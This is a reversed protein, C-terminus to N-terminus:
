DDDKKKDDKKDNSDKCVVKPVSDYVITSHQKDIVKDSDADRIIRTDSSTFGGQGANPTCDKDSVHRTGPDTYDRRKGTKSEVKVHKTGWLKVTISSPTWKTQIAVGTDYNNTFKVDILSDGGPTMFVTAERAEPYRDIYYSHEQHETDKMGAFYAANYLTTAFQSIGGGVGEDPVGDKIIGAPVYGEAETRKGTYGNLSFTDGPKVVAGDLREAVKKINVGSDAAFDKTTFKGIVEDVGLNKADKTTLDPKKKEYVADISRSGKGTLVDLLPKTTKKWDVQKGSESPQVTPEGDKFVIEADKGSKETDDLDVADAVKNRDIKPKLTGKDTPEFSLAAAVGEPKLTADGGKGHVTVPESVAPKAVNNMANRVAKAKVHVPRKSVPLRLEHDAVWQKEVLETAATTRLKQGARPHVAVPEANKFEIDGEVPERNVDDALKGMTKALRDEDTSTAVGVENTTFFSTLRTIPNYSQDGAARLTADWDLELGAKDPSIETHQEGAVLEIPETMRPELEDHLVERADNPSKGGIDVNAVTVGRPVDGHNILLDLGYLVALAAVVAGTITATRRVAHGRRPENEAPETATGEAAAQEVSPTDPDDFGDVAAISTTQEAASPESPGAFATPETGNEEHNDNDALGAASTEDSTADDVGTPTEPSPTGIEDDDTEPWQPEQPM